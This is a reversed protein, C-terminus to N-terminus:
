TVQAPQSAQIYFSFSTVVDSISISRNTTENSVALIESGGDDVLIQCLDTPSTNSAIAADLVRSNVPLRRNPANADAGNQTTEDVITGFLDGATVASAAIIKAVVTAYSDARLYTPVLLIRDTNTVIYNLQADLVSQGHKTLAM